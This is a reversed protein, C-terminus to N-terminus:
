IRHMILVKQTLLYSKTSVVFACSVLARVAEVRSTPFGFNLSKAGLKTATCEKKTLVINKEVICLM